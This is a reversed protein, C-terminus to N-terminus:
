FTELVRLRKNKGIKHQRKQFIRLVIGASILSAGVIVSGRSIGFHEGGRIAPNVNDALFYLLGAAPLLVSGQNLFWGEKRLIIRDVERVLVKTGYITFSSDDVASIVEHYVMNDGKLRFTIENGVFFRIRKISGPKDLVLYKQPIFAPHTVIPPQPARLSDEEGPQTQLIQGFALQVSLLMFVFHYFCQMIVPQHSYSSKLGDM